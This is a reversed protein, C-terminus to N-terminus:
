CCLFRLDSQLWFLPPPRGLRGDRARISATQSPAAGTEALESQERKPFMTSMGPRIWSVEEGGLLPPPPAAVLSFFPPSSFRASPRLIEPKQHLRRHLRRSRKSGPVPPHPRGPGDPEGLHHRQQAAADAAGAATASAAAGQGEAHRRVEGRHSVLLGSPSLPPAPPPTLLM